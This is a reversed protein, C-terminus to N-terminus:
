NQNDSKLDALKAFPGPSEPQAGGGAETCELEEGPKRPYDTAHSSILEFIVRGIEIREDAIPEPDEADHADIEVEAEIGFQDAPRFEVEFDTSIVEDIPDLSIVCAQVLEAELTGKTRFRSKAIPAIRYSVTIANCGLVGMAAAVEGCEAVTATREIEVGKAGVEAVTHTWDLM